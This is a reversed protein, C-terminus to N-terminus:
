PLDDLYGREIEANMQEIDATPASYKAAERIARIKTAADKVPEQARQARIAQRVWEAVTVQRRKASRRLEEMEEENLLVQLRHSM